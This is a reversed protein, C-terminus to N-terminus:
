SNIKYKKFYKNTHNFFTINEYKVKRRYVAWIFNNDLLIQTNKVGFAQEIGVCYVDRKEDLYTTQIQYRFLGIKTVRIDLYEPDKVKYM